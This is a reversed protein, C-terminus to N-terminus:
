RAGRYWNEPADGLCEGVTVMKLGRKRIEDIMAQALIDVTSRHVDHALTITGGGDLERRFKEFSNWIAVPDDNEYDKTDISASIVHYSLQGMIALVSGDVALYPPRMYTPIRGIIRLFASELQTMQKVMVNQDLGGVLWPHSWTHSGVQHGEAIARRVIDGNAIINAHLQGTLFFTARVGNARLLDLIKNTFIFPGDDFTLAFTGPVTCRDIVAGFPVSTGRRDLQTEDIEHTSGNVPFAASFTALTCLVLSTTFQILQM